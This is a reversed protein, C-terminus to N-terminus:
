SFDVNGTEPYEESKLLINNIGGNITFNEFDEVGPINSILPRLDNYRLIGEEKARTYIRKVAEKFDIKIQELDTTDDYQLGNCVYSIQVTIAPVCVLEACATPLLRQSRDDPSVIHNYVLNILTQNAPQGNQDILILKVTGPGDYASVVICDGAGAEKAWRIYDSDNGLYTMNGEYESAIRDYFDNDSERETGGRIPDTNTIATIGNIPRAMLSIANAGINSGLGSEVATVPIQAIGDSGIQADEDTAYEISLGHDTAPTCFITGKRIMIGAQGMVKVKGSAYGPPHRELHVQQGHLDLWQDWAYQPFALMIARMLHYQIFEAKELAAPKTFDYPFGGPMDDIGEPLNNMMRQHIEDASNNEVFEPLIFEPQMKVVGRLNINHDTGGM